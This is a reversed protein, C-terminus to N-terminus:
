SPRRHHACWICTPTRAGTTCRPSSTGTFLLSIALALAAALLAATVVAHAALHYDGGAPQQPTRRHEADDGTGAIDEEPGPETHRM